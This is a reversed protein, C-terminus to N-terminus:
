RCQCPCLWIGICFQMGRTLRSDSMGGSGVRWRRLSAAVASLPPTATERLSIPAFRFGKFANPLPTAISEWPESPNGKKRRGMGMQNKTTAPAPPTTPCRSANDVIRGACVVPLYRYTFSSYSLAPFTSHTRTQPPKPTSFMRPNKATQHVLCAYFPYVFMRPYTPLYVPLHPYSQQHRFM